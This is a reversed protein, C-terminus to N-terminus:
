DQRDNLNMNLVYVFLPAGDLTLRYLIEVTNLAGHPFIYHAHMICTFLHSHIYIISNVPLNVVIYGSSSKVLKYKQQITSKTVTPQSKHVM